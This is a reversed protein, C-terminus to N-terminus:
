KLKRELENIDYFVPINLKRAIVEEKDSGSSKGPFRYLADCVKLWEIDYALWSKYHRPTVMHWFHNIHPIFPIYGMEMLTDGIRLAKNTNESPDPSTYPGAVYIKKKTKM